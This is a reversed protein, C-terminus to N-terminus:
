NELWNNVLRRLELFWDASLWMYICSVFCRGNESLNPFHTAFSASFWSSLTLSEYKLWCNQRKAATMEAKEERMFVAAWQPSVFHANPTRLDATTLSMYTLTPWSQHKQMLICSTVLQEDFIPPFCFAYFAAHWHKPENILSLFVFVCAFEPYIALKM